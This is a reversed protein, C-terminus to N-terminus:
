RGTSGFGGTRKATTNDDSTKFIPILIGQAFREGKKVEYDVDFKVQAMIHGENKENDYYDADVVGITNTLVMGKNNSLGSRPFLFLAVDMTTDCYIDPISVKIGTYIKVKEGARISIDFPAYFDYGAARETSRTPLKLDNYAQKVAEENATWGLGEAWAKVDKLFQEQSVKEFKM